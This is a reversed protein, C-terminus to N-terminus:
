RVTRWSHGDAIGGGEETGRAGQVWGCGRVGSVTWDKSQSAPRRAQLWLSVPFPPAPDWVNTAGGRGALSPDADPGVATASGGGYVAGREKTQAFPGSATAVQHVQGTRRGPRCVPRGADGDVSVLARGPRDADRM